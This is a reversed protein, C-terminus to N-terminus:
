NAFPLAVADVQEDQLLHLAAYVKSTGSRQKLSALITCLFPPRLSVRVIGQAGARGQCSVSLAPMTFAVVSACTWLTLLSSSIFPSLALPFEEDRKKDWKM